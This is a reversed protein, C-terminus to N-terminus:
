LLGRAHIAHWGYGDMLFSDGVDGRCAGYDGYAGPLCVGDYVWVSTGCVRVREVSRGQGCPPEEHGTRSHDYGYAGGNLLSSHTVLRAPWLLKSTELFEVDERNTRGDGDDDSDPTSERQFVNGGGQLEDADEYGDGDYDMAEVPQLWLLGFSAALFVYFAADRGRM